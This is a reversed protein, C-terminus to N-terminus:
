VRQESSRRYRSRGGDVAAAPVASQCPSEWYPGIMASVRDGFPNVGAGMALSQALCAHLCKVRTPMGGASVEAIEAPVAAPGTFDARAALFALHAVQYRQALVPDSTLEAQWSRM